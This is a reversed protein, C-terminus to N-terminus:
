VGSGWVSTSSVVGLTGGAQPSKPQLLLMDRHLCLDKFSLICDKSMSGHSPDETFFAAMKDKIMKSTNELQKSKQKEREEMQAMTM